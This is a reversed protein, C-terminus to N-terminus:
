GCRIGNDSMVTTAALSSVDERILRARSSVASASTVHFDAWVSTLVLRPIDRSVISAIFVFPVGIDCLIQELLQVKSHAGRAVRPLKSAIYRERLSVTFVELNTPLKCRSRPIPKGRSSRGLAMECSSRAGDKRPRARSTRGAAFAAPLRAVPGYYFVAKRLAAKEEARTKRRKDTHAGAPRLNTPPGLRPVNVPLLRKTRKRM